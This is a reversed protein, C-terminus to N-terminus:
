TSTTDPSGRKEEVSLNSEPVPHGRNTRGISSLLMLSCSALEEPMRRTSTRELSPSECRPWRKGSPGAGVPTRYQMLEAASRNMGTALSSSSPYPWYRASKSFTFGRGYAEGRHRGPREGGRQESQDEDAGGQGGRRGSRRTDRM